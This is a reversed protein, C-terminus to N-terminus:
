ELFEPLPNNPPKLRRRELQAIHMFLSEPVFKPWWRLPAEPCSQVFCGADTLAQRMEDRVSVRDYLGTRAHRDALMEVGANLDAIPPGEGYFFLAMVGLRLVEDVPSEVGPIVNTLTPLWQDARAWTAQHDHGFPEVMLVIEVPVNHRKASRVYQAFRRRALKLQIDLELHDVSAESERV